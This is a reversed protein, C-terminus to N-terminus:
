NLPEEDLKFISNTHPYQRDNLNTVDISYSIEEVFYELGVSNLIENIVDM